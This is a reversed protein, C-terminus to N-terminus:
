RLGGIPEELGLADVPGVAGAPIVDVVELQGGESPDVPEVVVAEVAVASVYGWCLEFCGEVSGLLGVV